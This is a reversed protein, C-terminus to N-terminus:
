KTNLMKQYYIQNTKKIAEIANQQTPNSYFKNLVADDEEIFDLFANSDINAIEGTEIDWVADKKFDKLALVLGAGIMGTTIGVVALIIKDKKELYSDSKKVYLYRGVTTTKKMKIKYAPLTPNGVYFNVGDSYGFIRKCLHTSNTSFIIEEEMPQLTKYPESTEFPLNKKYDLFSLYIGKQPVYASDLYSSPSNSDSHIENKGVNSLAEKLIKYILVPFRKRVDGAGSPETYSGHYHGYPILNGLNDKKDFDIDLFVQGLKGKVDYDEVVSFFHITAIIPTKHVTDETCEQFFRLLYQELDNQEFYATINGNDTKKLFKGIINKRQRKDVIKNIYFNEFSSSLLPKAYKAELKVIHKDGIQAFLSFTLLLFLLAFVHKM